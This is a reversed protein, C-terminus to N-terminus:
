SAGPLRRVLRGAARDGAGLGLEQAPRRLEVASDFDEVKAWPVREVGSGFVRAGFRRAWRPFRRPLAGYGTLAAAVYTNEGPDGDLELDDVKGCRIGESDVLDLDLLRYALDLERDAM